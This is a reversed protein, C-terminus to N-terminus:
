SPNSGTEAKKSELWMVFFGVALVLSIVTLLLHLVYDSTGQFLEIATMSLWVVASVSWLVTWFVLVRRSPQQPKKGPETLGMMDAMRLWANRRGNGAMAWRYGGDVLSPIAALLKCSGPFGRSVEGM